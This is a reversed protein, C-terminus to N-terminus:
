LGGSELIIRTRWITVCSQSGGDSFLINKNRKSEARCSCYPTGGLM